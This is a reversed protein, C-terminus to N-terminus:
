LETKIYSKIIGKLEYLAEIQQILGASGEPNEASKKVGGIEEDLIKLQDIHRQIDKDLFVKRDDLQKAEEEKMTPKEKQSKIQNELTELQAKKNSLEQRVEERIEKTKYLKFELDWIMNQVAKSKKQFYTKKKNFM